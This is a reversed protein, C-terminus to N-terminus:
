SEVRGETEREEEKRRLKGWPGRVGVRRGREVRPGFLSGCCCLGRDDAWAWARGAEGQLEGFSPGWTAASLAEATSNLNEAPAPSNTGPPDDEAVEDSWRGPVAEGLWERGPVGRRVPAREGCGVMLGRWAWALQAAVWDGRPVGM